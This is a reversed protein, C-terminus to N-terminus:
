ARERFPKFYARDAMALMARDGHSDGYAIVESFDEVQLHDRIRSVKEEGNCNAGALEGTFRDGDWAGHTCLLDIGESRAWPTLWLDLSASVLLVKDGDTQHSRIAARGGPRLLEPIVERAFREAYESLEKRSMGRFHHKLLKVKARDNRILGTKMGFLVPSLWLYSLYLRTRGRVFKIFEIMTDRTTLTGDFDFLILRQAM